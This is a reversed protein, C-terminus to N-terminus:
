SPSAVKRPTTRLILLQEASALPKRGTPSRAALPGPLLSVVDTWERKRRAFNRFTEPLRSWPGFRKELTRPNLKGERSYVRRPRVGRHRRVARGWDELLAYDKPKIKLTYSRLRSARVADNWSRFHQLVHYTSIDSLSNFEKQSPARGLKSAIKEMSSVIQYKDPM